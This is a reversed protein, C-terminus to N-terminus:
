ICFLNFLLLYRKCVFSLVTLTLNTYIKSIKNSIVKTSKKYIKSAKSKLFGKFEISLSSLNDITFIRTLVLVRILSMAGLLKFLKITKFGKILNLMTTSMTNILQNRM